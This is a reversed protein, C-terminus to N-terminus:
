TSLTPIAYELWASKSLNLLVKVSFPISKCLFAGKFSKKADLKLAIQFLPSKCESLLTEDLLDLFRGSHAVTVSVPRWRAMNYNTNM